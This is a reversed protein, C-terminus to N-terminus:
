RWNCQGFEVFECNIGYYEELEELTVQERYENGVGENWEKVIAGKAEDKTLGIARWSYRESDMTAIWVGNM